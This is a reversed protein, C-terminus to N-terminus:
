MKQAIALKKTEHNKASQALKEFFIFGKLVFAKRTIKLFVIAFFALTLSDGFMNLTMSESGEMSNPRGETSNEPGRESDSADVRQEERCDCTSGASASKMTM